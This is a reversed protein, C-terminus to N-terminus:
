IGRHNSWTVVHPIVCISEPARKPHKQRYGRNFVLFVASAIWYKLLKGMQHSLATARQAAPFHHVRISYAMHEDCKAASNQFPRRAKPLETVSFCSLVRSNEATWSNERPNNDHTKWCLPHFGDMGQPKINNGFAKTSTHTTLSTEIETNPPFELNKTVSFLNWSRSFKRSKNFNCLLSTLCFPDWTRIWHEMRKKNFWLKKTLDPAIRKANARAICSYLKLQLCPKSNSPLFMGVDSFKWSNGVQIM